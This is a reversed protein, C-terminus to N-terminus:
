ASNNAVGATLRFYPAAKRLSLIGALVLPIAWVISLVTVGFTFQDRDWPRVMKGTLATYTSRAFPFPNFQFALSDVNFGVDKLLSSLSDPAWHFLHRPVDLSDWMAGFFQQGLSGYAPVGISLHGNPGLLRRASVLVARPSRMHELSHNMVIWDFKENLIPLVSEAFGHLMRIGNAECSRFGSLSPEIGAVVHGRARAELLFTGSGAGVDLIRYIRDLPITNERSRTFKGLLQILWRAAEVTRKHSSVGDTFYTDQYAADLETQSPLPHTWAVGCAKCRVIDRSDTIGDRVSYIETKTDLSGCLPCRRLAPASPGRM